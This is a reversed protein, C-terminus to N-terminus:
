GDVICDAVVPRVLVAQHPTGGDLSEGQLLRGESGSGTFACIIWFRLDATRRTTMANVAHAANQACGAPAASYGVRGIWTNIGKAVPPAVWAKDSRTLRAM